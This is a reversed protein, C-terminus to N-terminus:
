GSFSTKEWTKNRMDLTEVSYKEPYRKLSTEVATGIYSNAGTILVHKGM